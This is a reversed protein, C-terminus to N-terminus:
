LHGSEDWAHRAFATGRDRVATTADGASAVPHALPRRAPFRTSVAAVDTTEFDFTIDDM